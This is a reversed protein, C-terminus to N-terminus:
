KRLLTCSATTPADASSYAASLAYLVTDQLTLHSPISAPTKHVRSLGSNRVRQRMLHLFPGFMAARPYAKSIGAFM